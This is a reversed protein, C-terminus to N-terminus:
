LAMCGFAARAAWVVRQCPEGEQAYKSPCGATENDGETGSFYLWGDERDEKGWM